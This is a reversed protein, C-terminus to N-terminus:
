LLSVHDDFKSQLHDIMPEFVAEYAEIVGKWRKGSM